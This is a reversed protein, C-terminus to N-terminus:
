LGRCNNDTININDLVMESNDLGIVSSGESHTNGANKSFLSLSLIIVSHVMLHTVSIAAGRTATNRLFLCENVFYILSDRVSHRSQMQLDITLTGGDKEATNGNFM